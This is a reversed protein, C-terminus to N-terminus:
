QYPKANEDYGICMAYIKKRHTRKTKADFEHKVAYTKFCMRFENMNPWLKGVEIIPNEKDYFNVPEDDHADDVGDVGDEMLQEGVDKSSDINADAYLSSEGRQEKDRYDVPIGIFNAMDTYAMPTPFLDTPDDLEVSDWDISAVRAAAAGRNTLASEM